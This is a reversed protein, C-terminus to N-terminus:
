AQEWGEPLEDGSAFAKLLTEGLDAWAPASTPYGDQTWSVVAADHARDFGLSGVLASDDGEDM